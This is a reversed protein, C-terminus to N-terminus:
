LLESIEKSNQFTAEKLTQIMFSMVEKSLDLTREACQNHTDDIHTHYGYM